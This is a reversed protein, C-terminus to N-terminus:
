RLTLAQELLVLVVSELNVEAAGVEIVASSHRVKIAIDCEMSLGRELLLIQGQPTM